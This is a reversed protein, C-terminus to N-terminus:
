LWGAPMRPAVEAFRKGSLVESVRGQNQDVRAGIQDQVLDTNQALWKIYAATIETLRRRKRAVM